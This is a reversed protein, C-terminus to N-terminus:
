RFEDYVPAYEWCRRFCNRLAQYEQHPLTFTRYCRGEDLRKVFKESPWRMPDLIIWSDRRFAKSNPACYFSSDNSDQPQCQANKHRGRKEQSTVVFFLIESGAREGVIVLMKEPATQGDPFEYKNHVLM